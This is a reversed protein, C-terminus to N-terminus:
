LGVETMDLTDFDYGKSVLYERRRESYEQEVTGETALEYFYAKGEKPRLVRGFRQSFGMRSGFLGAINIGVRANPLDIGEEGVSTLILRNLEGSRFAQYLKHRQTQSVKGTIVPIKLAEAMKEAGDVYFGIILTQDGEHKRLLERVVQIKAPNMATILVKQWDSARNYEARTKPNMGVLVEYAETEAVFGEEAMELWGRDMLPPGILSFIDKEKKDERVPTATLGLRRVTQIEVVRRWVEGPLHQVEDLVVLGWRTRWIEKGAGSASAMQYTSVTIPRVGRDRSEGTFVAVQYPQITTWRLYEQRAQKCVEARTTLYLTPAKFHVTAMVAIVTKGTGPPLIIVGSQAEVFRRLAEEQYDRPKFEPRLEIRIPKFEEILGLDKVPYGRDILLRKLDARRGAVIRGRTPGLRRYIYQKVARYSLLRNMTEEDAAELVNYGEEAVIRVAGYATMTRAIWNRLSAKPPSRAHLKLFEVVEDPTMRQEAAKWLSLRNVLYILVDDSAEELRSFREVVKHGVLFLNPAADADRPPRPAAQVVLSSFLRKVLDPPVEVRVKLEIEESL